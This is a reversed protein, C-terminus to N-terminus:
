ASCAAFPQNRSFRPAPNERNQKTDEMGVPLEAPPSIGEYVLAADLCDLATIERGTVLCWCKRNEM